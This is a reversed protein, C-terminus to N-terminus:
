ASFQMVAYKGTVHWEPDRADLRRAAEASFGVLPDSKSSRLALLPAPFYSVVDAFPTEIDWLADGVMRRYNADGKIIVLRAREFARYFVPPMDWLFLPSNWFFHPALRLRGAAWMARLRGALAEFAGGQGALADILHWVDAPIADSVFTPHMKLHLTLPGDGHALLFDALVLDAALETGANDAIIHYEGGPLREGAGARALFEFFPEREDILLDEASSKEAYNAAGHSLDVQNGWLAFLLLVSFREVLDGGTELTKGLLRWLRDGEIESQKTAAFPDRATEFWRMIQVLQRYVFTEAFFWECNHWTLPNFRAAHARHAAEWTAYDNPPAPFGALMPMVEGAILAGRLSELARHISDPWDPNAVQTDRLIGPVRRSMTDYAFANTHVLIPQPRQIM